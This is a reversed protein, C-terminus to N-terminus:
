IPATIPIPAKPLKPFRVPPRPMADVAAELLGLDTKEIYPRRPTKSNVIFGVDGSELLIILVIDSTKQSYGIIGEDPDTLDLQGITHKKENRIKNIIEKNLKKIDQEGGAIATLDINLTKLLNYLNSAKWIRLNEAAADGILKILKEPLMYVSESVTNRPDNDERSFEEFFKPQELPKQLTEEILFQYWQTNVEPIITQDGIKITKSPSSLYSVDKYLLQRRKEPLRLLEDLLRLM